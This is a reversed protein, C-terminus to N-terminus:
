EDEVPYNEDPIFSHAIIIWKNGIKRLFYGFKVPPSKRDNYYDRTIIDVDGKLLDDTDHLINQMSIIEYSSFIMPFSGLNSTDNEGLAAAILLKNGTFCGRYYTDMTKEPSSLDIHIYKRTSDIQNNKSLSKTPRNEKACCLFFISLSVIAFVFNVKM